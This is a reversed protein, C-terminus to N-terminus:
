CSVAKGQETYDKLPAVDKQINKVEDISALKSEIANEDLEHIGGTLQKADKAYGAVDKGLNSVEGLKGKANPL